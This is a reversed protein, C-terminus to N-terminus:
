VKSYLTVSGQFVTGDSEVLWSFDLDNLLWTDYDLTSRDEVLDDDYEGVPWPMRQITPPDRTSFVMHRRRPSMSSIEDHVHVSLYYVCETM